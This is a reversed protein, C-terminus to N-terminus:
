GRDLDVEQNGVMKAHLQNHIGAAVRQSLSQQYGNITGLATNYSSVSGVTGRSALGHREEALQTFAGPLDARAEQQTTLGGPSDEEPIAASAGPPQDAGNKPRGFQRSPYRPVERSM